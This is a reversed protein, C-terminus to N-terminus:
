RWFPIPARDPVYRHAPTIQALNCGAEHVECYQQGDLLYEIPECFFQVDVAKRQDIVPARLGGHNPREEVLPRFSCAPQEGPGNFDCNRQKYAIRNGTEM